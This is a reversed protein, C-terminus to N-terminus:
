LLDPTRLNELYSSAVYDNLAGSYYCSDLEVSLPRLYKPEVMYINTAM